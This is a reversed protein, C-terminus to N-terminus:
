KKSPTVLVVDGGRFTNTEVSYGCGVSRSTSIYDNGEDVSGEIITKKCHQKNSISGDSGSSAPNQFM